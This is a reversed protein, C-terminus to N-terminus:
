SGLADRRQKGAALLRVLQEQDDNAVARRFEALVKAFNDLSRLVYAQNDCLIQRWLEPDGAAIRTTDAWGGATFPLEDESTSAALAAAVIHPVHSTTALVQDHQDPTQVATRAGLSEWFDKVREAATPDTRETPTLVVLRGAFLDARAAASGTKESGALPHSGVFAVDSRGPWEREIREILHQKTSGVDTILTGPGCHRAADLVHEAIHAVPTCVIVLEAAAVGAALDTTTHTTCGRAAAEDLTSSRRGIGVVQEALRRERLALGISAGLLGVGVIAVSKWVM